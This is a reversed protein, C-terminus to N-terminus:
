NVVESLQEVENLCKQSLMIVESSNHHERNKLALEISYECYRKAEALKKLKLNVLGLNVYFSALEKSKSEIAGEVARKIFTEGEDPENIMALTTGVDNLLILTQQHLPGLVKLSIQLAKRLM